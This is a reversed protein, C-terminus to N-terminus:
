FAEVIELQSSACRGFEEPAYQLHVEAGPWEFKGPTVSRVLYHLSYIGPELRDGYAVVRDRYIQQYGIQWSDAQAKLAPTSTQFSADVAEFGGPLPDTIVVQEVPHDTIIELGIDFVEGTGITFPEDEAYLGVKRLVEDDNAARIERTVRLGNFRGPQNGALRYRYATLYHLTGQGSKNLILDHQGRPLKAMPVKLELSPKQYGNFRESGLNKGALRATARFNPPEPQLQSYEVLATLAEANDYSTQWTGNKRLTLLGQLLRDLVEPAAQQAIFLRLAQAQASSRSNMWRWGQPINIKATRGTEYVTEQLQEFLAQSEQQWEPFQSLYRALKIQTLQDFKNRQGYIDALFDNRKEGLAALAMLAKLRVQSKCPQQQCFDYQGPNALIKQLYTQLRSVMAEDVTLGAAKAQALSQAVYPTVFPDSRKQGPWSAFGGDAQQLKQLRQNATTQLQELNAFSQGYKQGLIELNAAIALQSAAPELFPLWDNELVQQAPATIEPILTSALFIDLGGAESIVKKDINLPIKVQNNTTGTEVVQETIALPKIALPVEFTDRPQNNLKTIFKVKAEGINTALMPFRYAKTGAEARIPLVERKKSTKAFQLNGELTGEIRLNGKEKTNNSVALGGEFQDGPRVFQPLVPNALLLKKATFEAEGNGFNLNDDTAVVMVRWTTLDDPLNFTVNAKGSSDTLVSGNYYATAQFNERVRTNAGGASLGGGYGWGKEIPSSLAAIVVNPRNDSFRTSIDQQAYVTEVLDPPRYGTLQLVAENVVMVTLQGQIPQDQTDKLEFQITEQEGPALYEQEPTVTVQLYKDDLNTKFPVFGIKVLKDLGGTELQSLPKGQRVLVAQVAANPLMEPTVQFKIEPASGNVKIIEQYITKDRVVAFYLEAEPYPSQILATATEGPQYTEKDLKIELRNNQYRGGWYFADEGTAWIQLDTATLQKKSNGFNARIRYSGSEPPTLSFTKPSDDSLITETVVTKYELQNKARRSGEVLQTVSNYKIRQLEIRVPQEALVKGEFDTVIVQVPFSKGAEAVFDSQLGIFRDNPLVTFTQSDSVSLNSIDSVQADVRYTMAYPLEEKLSIVQSSKGQQDLVENVQLVDSPISPKEEPWFWRRGFSFKDWGKPTFETQSRTIYYEIKGGQVPSGFLYNSEANAEVQQNTLSFKKNLSLEVKFNPPKFEAVRFEGSIEAGSEGKARLSYYGLPQNASLPLEVSFTGFKNTIKTGLDTKKGDPSELTLQYSANLDQKLEGNQLYYAAGTFWAKEGPQYLKRDSFITGRSKPKGNDWGADIGYDYSGSYELTRTFAWDQNERAIVLLEPAKDFNQGGGKICSKLEESSLLLTGTKDTKGIACPPSEVRSKAQLQSQYIEVEANEVASGDALHHVRVLGSNPFWQAFVGLNTLQVLGYFTPENWEQKGKREYRTTKAQIGYALMGTASNLKETLPVNAKTFKNKRGSLSFSSWQTPKPLLDKGEGRPYASDTYILDTPEVVQYAAKYKSEPLNVTSIDLQLNKGSPFINLGSPVWIEAALDGTKYKLTESKGLTQGFKDKLKDAITITYSTNPELAWPNLTVLNYEDYARVAPLNEKPSPKITINELASAAMLGNNFKLEASGEVFRGYNKQSNIEEFALPAYTSVKSFFATETLLNGRAPRLGPSFELRYSTAKALSQRPQITYVWDRGSIDFKEQPQQNESALEDEQLAVKLQLSDEKGEPILSVHEKLSALDLQTNATVKLTPNLSIPEPKSDEENNATAGPLNTLRIAETNFTWALDEELSHDKLDKLGAKLTVRVRTAKPLAQEAQFGVMRPTLFRFSGPLPPLIEFKQLLQQQTPSELSELPILPEKFRIRIQSLTDAQGLPSIQEIWDPLSPTTLPAVTPLPETGSFINAWGCGTMGMAIALPLILHM